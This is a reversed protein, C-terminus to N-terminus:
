RNGGKGNLKIARQVLPMIQPVLQNGVNEVLVTEGSEVADSLQATFSPDLQHLVLMTSHKIGNYRAQVFVYIM